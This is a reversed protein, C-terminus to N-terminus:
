EFEKETEFSGTRYVVRIWPFPHVERERTIKGYEFFEFMEVAQTHLNGVKLPIVVKEEIREEGLVKSHVNVDMRAPDLLDQPLLPSVDGMPVQRIRFLPFVAQKSLHEFVTEGTPEDMKHAGGEGAAHSLAHVLHALLSEVLMNTPLRRQGESGKSMSLKQFPIIPDDQAMGMERLFNLLPDISPPTEIKIHAVPQFM